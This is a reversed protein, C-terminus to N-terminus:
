RRSELISRYGGIPPGLSTGRVDVRDLRIGISFLSPYTAESFANAPPREFTVLAVGRDIQVHFFEFNM